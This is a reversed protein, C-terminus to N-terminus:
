GLLRECENRVVQYCECARAELGVRDSITIKGRNYHILGAQGGCYDAPSM